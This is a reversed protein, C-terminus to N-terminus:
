QGQRLIALESKYQRSHRCVWESLIHERSRDDLYLESESIVTKAKEMLTYMTLAASVSINLSEVMGTMPITFRYDIEADWDSHVGQHENGFLVAVPQDVPIDGLKCSAAPFGAAIKYGKRRLNTVSESITEFKNFNLWHYAGRAVTSPKAFKQYTNVVDINLVGFAEASRMCAAINHPDHIDQLVLRIHESRKSAVDLMKERRKDTLRPSLLRWADSPFGKETLPISDNM